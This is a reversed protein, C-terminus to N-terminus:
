KKKTNQLKKLIKLFIRSYPLFCMLAVHIGKHKRCSSEVSMLQTLIKNHLLQKIEGLIDVELLTAIKLAYSWKSEKQPPM